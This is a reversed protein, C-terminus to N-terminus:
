GRGRDDRSVFEFGFGADFVAADSGEMLVEAEAELGFGDEDFADGAFGGDADLDGVGSAFDDGQAFDELGGLEM